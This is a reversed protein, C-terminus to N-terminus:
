VEGVNPTTSTVGREALAELKADDYNLITRLVSATHEGLDPAPREVTVGRDDAGLERDITVVGSAGGAIASKSRCIRSSAGRADTARRLKSRSSCNRWTSSIKVRTNPLSPVRHAM